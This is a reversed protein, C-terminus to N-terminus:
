EVFDKSISLISESFERAVYQVPALRTLQYPLKPLSVMPENDKNEPLPFYYYGIFFSRCPSRPCQYLVEATLPADVKVYAYITRVDIGKHCIPCTEPIVVEISSEQNNSYIARIAKIESM